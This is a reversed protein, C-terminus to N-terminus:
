ALESNRDVIARMAEFSPHVYTNLTIAVDSHGLIRALTAADCGLSVCNTAFTHRLAHFNIDPVGADRLAAKFRSQFRRPEMPTETGTLVYCDDGCRASELVPLLRAPVPIARMSSSSKPTDLVLATKREGDHVALRQLTRRICIINCDPSFDGWRLGCAEGLRMGTYMCLLIGLQVPGDEPRLTELLRLQDAQSLIRAEHRAGHPLQFRGNVAACLGADHALELASRLIHCIIRLTSSSYIESEEGLFKAVEEDTMQETPVPGLAPRIYRECAGGYTALTSRKVRGRTEALWVDLVDNFAARGSKLRADDIQKCFLTLM